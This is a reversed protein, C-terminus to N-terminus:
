YEVLKLRPGNPGDPDLKTWVYIWGVAQHDKSSWELPGSQTARTYGAQWLNYLDAPSGSRTKRMSDGIINM